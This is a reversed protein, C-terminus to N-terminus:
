TLLHPSGSLVDIVLSQRACQVWYQSRIPGTWLFDRGSFEDAGALWLSAVVVSTATPVLALSPVVISSATPTSSLIKGLIGLRGGNSTAGCVWQVHGFHLPSSRMAVLRHPFQLVHCPPLLPHFVGLFPTVSANFLVGVFWFFEPKPRGDFFGFVVPISTIATSTMRVPAVPASTLGKPSEGAAFKSSKEIEIVFLM